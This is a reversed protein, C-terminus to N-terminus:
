VFASGFLNCLSVKLVQFAYTYTSNNLTPCIAYYREACLYGPSTQQNIYIKELDTLSLFIIM